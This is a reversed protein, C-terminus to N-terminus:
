AADLRERGVVFAGYRRLYIVQYGGVVQLPILYFTMDGDVVFFYDVEEPSYVATGKRRSSSIRVAWSGSAKTTTTKVQIRQTVGSDSVLLDYRCPELPWAVEYGRLTFWAAALLPGARDLHRPSAPNALVRHDAAPPGGALHAV